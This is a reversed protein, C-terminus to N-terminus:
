LYEERLLVPEGVKSGIRQVSINADVEKNVIEIFSSLLRGYITMSLLDSQVIYPQATGKRSPIKNQNYENLLYYYLFAPLVMRSVVKIYIKNEDCM